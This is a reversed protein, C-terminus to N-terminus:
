TGITRESEQSLDATFTCLTEARYVKVDGMIYCFGLIHIILLTLFFMSKFGQPWSLSLGTGAALQIAPTTV